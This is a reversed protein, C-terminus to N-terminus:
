RQAVVTVLGGSVYASLRARYYAFRTQDTFNDQQKNVSTYITQYHSDDDINSAQIQVTATPNADRWDVTFTTGQDSGSPSLGRALAQSAQPATPLEASFLLLADGPRCDTAQGAVYNPM